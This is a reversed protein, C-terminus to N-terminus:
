GALPATAGVDAIIGALFEPEADCVGLELIGLFTKAVDPDFQMGAYRQLEEVATARSLAKRYPRDSSMADFADAVGIIRSILPVDSGCLGDPYGTGDWWEHHHRISEAVQPPIDLTRILRAGIEPHAQVIVLEARNLAGPKLLLDSPVGVKGLDHLFAALRVHEHEEASLSMRHAILSAYYAVRRAHGRMYRDKTEITEALVELFEVTRNSDILQDAYRAGGGHQDLIGGLRGALKESRRVDDLIANVSRNRGLLAGIQDLFDILRSRAQRRSLSRAVAASVQVVDFPKQIYDALRCRIGETASEISACGTIVIIEVQPLENRITRMLDEGGMGPMHLDLTVLDVEHTRLMELAEAANRAQLVRHAPSLIMRLSERPGREDDVILVTAKDHNTSM